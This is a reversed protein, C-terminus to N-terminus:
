KIKVEVQKPKTEERKAITVRLVGDKYEANIKNQDAFSPLTFSRVFDGYSREIRHYNEKKTEEEFKREGRITLMNNELSVLINEKKVEPLEAKVVIENDTEYIDCSPAWTTVSWSEEPLPELFRGFGEGFLRRMRQDFNRFFPDSLISVGAGERPAMATGSKNAM